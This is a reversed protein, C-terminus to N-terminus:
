KGQKHLIRIRSNHTEINLEDFKCTVLEGDIYLKRNLMPKLAIREGRFMRVEEAYLYKKKFIQRIYNSMIAKDLGTDFVIECKGDDPVSSPTMPLGVTNPLLNINITQPSLDFAFADVKISTEKVNVGAAAQSALRSWGIAFRPTKKTRLIEMMEPVLGIGLSGIFFYREAM